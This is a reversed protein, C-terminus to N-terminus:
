ALPETVPPVYALQSGITESDGAGIAKRALIGGFFGCNYSFLQVTLAPPVGFASLDDILVLKGVFNNGEMGISGTVSVKQPEPLEEQAYSDLIDPIPESYIKTGAFKKLMAGTPTSTLSLALEGSTGTPIVTEMINTNSRITPPEDELFVSFSRWLSKIYNLM